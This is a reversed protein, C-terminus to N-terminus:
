GRTVSVLEQRDNQEIRGDSLRVWVEHAIDANVGPAVWITRRIQAGLQMNYGLAEIRYTDFTGAPVTVKERGAVKVDYRFTYNLGSTRNQRFMTQWRRGVVLESPYFQRPTGMSGRQNGTTNGMLDSTFEGGNYEVRDRGIDVASVRMVLPRSSRNFLDVVRLEYVDGVRYDRRHENLGSFYPTPAVTPVPPEPPLALALRQEEAALREIERRAAEARRAAAAAAEREIREAQRRREDAEAARQQAVRLAEQQERARQERAARERAEQLAKADAEARRAAAEREAALRAAEREAVERREREDAEAKLRQAEAAAAKQRAAERHSEDVKRLEDELLRNLKAQALESANGSPYKRIFDTLATVSNTGRVVSWDALEQEFRRELETDSLKTAKRQFLYVTEELSTSEWPIQRGNSELRVNLRVRKFADELTAEPVGLEKVLHKTYLGNSGRGDLALKGPATAYALLSGAPADFPSLGKAAPRYTGAFPDERCADLIVLYNRGKSDSMYRMLESVDVANRQVDTASRVKADVPVLYNRWDQQLGHGAYYFVAFRVASQRITEGFRAIAQVLEIRMTDTQLDVQFGARGLLDSMARADNKPNFLPVGAYASNGIVLAVRDAGAQATAPAAWGGALLSAVSASAQRRNLMPPAHPVPRANM